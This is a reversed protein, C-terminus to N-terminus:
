GAKSIAVFARVDGGRRRVDLMVYAVRQGPGHYTYQGGRGAAFVPFRDPAVLDAPKASTGATYLPPHELLWVLRKVALGRRRIDLLVYAIVQGPGHYTVQGGRDVRVVPIGNARLLHEPKGAQGLTYVPPHELLWLEDPTDAARQATFARMADYAEAYAICGMRRVALSDEAAPRAAIPAIPSLSAQPM